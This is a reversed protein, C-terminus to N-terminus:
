RRTESHMDQLNGIASVSQGSEGNAASNPKAYSVPIPRVKRRDIAWPSPSACRGTQKQLQWWWQRIRLVWRRWPVAQHRLHGHRNAQWCSWSEVDMATLWQGGFCHTDLCILHGYDAAQGSLQPTHGVFVRKGSHHPAPLPIALHEWYRIQEPQQDMPLEPIYNAHVFIHQDTEIYPQCQGLLELHREPIAALRGGYSTVTARGGMQMWLQTDCGGRACALLMIEHNGLILETRCRKHLEVLLDLVGRADPGRDVYDGLLILRDDPGPEIAELLSRLAKSCGHIDGIAITRV